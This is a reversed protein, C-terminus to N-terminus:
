VETTPEHLYKKHAMYSLFPTIQGFYLSRVAKYFEVISEHTTFVKKPLQYTYEQEYNWVISEVKKLEFMALAHIITRSKDVSCAGGEHQVILAEFHRQVYKHHTFLWSANMDAGFQTQVFGKLFKELPYQLTFYFSEVDKIEALSEASTRTATLVQEALAKQDKELGSFLSDLVAKLGDTTDKEKM